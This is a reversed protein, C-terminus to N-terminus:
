PNMADMDASIIIVICTNGNIQKSARECELTWLLDLVKKIPVEENM